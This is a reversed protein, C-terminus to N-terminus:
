LHLSSPSYAFAIHVVIDDYCVVVVVVVVFTGVNIYEYGVDKLGSSVMADVTERIVSENLAVDVFSNWSSWGQQFVAFASFISNDIITILEFLLHM